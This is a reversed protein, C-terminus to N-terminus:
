QMRENSKNNQISGPENVKRRKNNMKPRFSSDSVYSINLAPRDVVVVEIVLSYILWKRDLGGNTTGLM